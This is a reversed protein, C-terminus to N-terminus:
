EVPADINDGPMWDTLTADLYVKQLAYLSIRVNYSKGAEFTSHPANLTLNINQQKPIGSGSSPAHVTLSIKYSSEGPKVMMYGCPTYSNDINTANHKTAEYVQPTVQQVTEVTNWIQTDGEHLKIIPLTAATNWTVTNDPITLTAKTFTEIKINSVKLDKAETQDDYPEDNGGAQDKATIVQFYLLSAKHEFAINPVFPKKAESLRKSDILWNHYKIKRIYKANYGTLTNGTIGKEPVDSENLKVYIEGEDVDDAQPARGSIIDESGDLNEFNVVIKGNSYSPTGESHPFYGFFDYNQSGQMPYYFVTPQSNNADEQNKYLYIKRGTTHVEPAFPGEDQGKAIVNYLLVNTTSTSWNTVDSQTLSASRNIAFIGLDSLETINDGKVITRTIAAQAENTAGLQIVLQGDASEFDDPSTQPISPADDNSCGAMSFCAAAFAIYLLHKM